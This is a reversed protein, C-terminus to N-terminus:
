EARTEAAMTEGTDFFSTIQQMLPQIFQSFNKGSEDNEDDYQTILDKIDKESKQPYNAKFSQLLLQNTDKIMSGVNSNKMDGALKLGEATWRTFRLFYSDGDIIVEIGKKIEAM